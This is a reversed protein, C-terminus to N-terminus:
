TLGSYELLYDRLGKTEQDRLGGKEREGERGRDWEGGKEGDKKRCKSFYIM